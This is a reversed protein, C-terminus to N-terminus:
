MLAIVPTIVKWISDSDDLLRGGKNNPSIHHVVKRETRQNEEKGHEMEGIALIWKPFWTFLFLPTFCCGHLLPDPAVVQM